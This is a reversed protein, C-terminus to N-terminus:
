RDNHATPALEVKMFSDIGFREFTRRHRSSLRPAAAASDIIKPHVVGYSQGSIQITARDAALVNRLWDVPAEGVVWRSPQSNHLSPARCALHVAKAIIETDATTRTM